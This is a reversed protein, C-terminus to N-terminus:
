LVRPQMATELANPNCPHCAGTGSHERQIRIHQSSTCSTRFSPLRHTRSTSTGPLPASDQCGLIQSLHHLHAPLHEERGASSTAAYAASATTGQQLMQMMTRREAPKCATTSGEQFFDNQKMALCSRPLVCITSTGPTHHHM